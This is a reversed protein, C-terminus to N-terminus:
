WGFGLMLQLRRDFLEAEDPSLSDVEITGILALYLDDTLRYRLSTESELLLRLPSGRPDISGEQEHLLSLREWFGTFNLEYDVGWGVLPTRWDSGESRHEEAYGPGARFTLRQLDDDFISRGFQLSGSARRRLGMSPDRLYRTTLTAFWPRILEKQLSVAVGQRDRLNRNAARQIDILGQLRLHDPGRRFTMDLRSLYDQRDTTSAVIAAGLELEGTVELEEKEDAVELSLPRPDDEPDPWSVKLIEEQPITVQAGFATLLTIAHDTEELIAGTLRDGGRLELRVQNAQLEAGRASFDWPLLVFAFFAILKSIKQKKQEAVALKSLM